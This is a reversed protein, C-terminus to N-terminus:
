EEGCDSTFNVNIDGHFGPPIVLQPGNTPQQVIQVDMWGSAGYDVNKGSAGPGVQFSPGMREYYLEAGAFADLGYARGSFTEYYRWTSPDIMGGSSIYYPTKLELKPSDTPPHNAMGPDVRGSFDVEVRFRKHPENPRYIEGTLRATGDPNEVFPAPGEFVFDTGIGPFYFGHDGSTTTAESDLMAETVCVGCGDGLDVNFDAGSIQLAPGTSPQSLIETTLWGSAGWRENAGSAGFGVQFSPGMRGLRIRAGDHQGLGIFEGSTHQYYRWRMFDIPGGQDAYQAAMLDRKPSESPLDDGDMPSAMSSFELEVAFRCDGGAIDYLVGSLTASGDPREYYAAPSEFDFWQSGVGGIWFAASGPLTSIASDRLATTACTSCNENLDLNIDGHPLSAPLSIGTTPQDILTVELWGAAGFGLNKGDAGDGVQFAPGMRAVHVKAGALADLGILDGGFTEYYRWGRTDVPGGQETFSVPTLEKKPSGAPPYGAQGPDIRGSLEVLAQFRWGPRTPSFLTGRIQATGDSSEAFAAGPEFMFDHSIGPLYFAHGGQYKAVAGDYRAASACTVCDDELDINIDGHTFGAPLNPGSDPQHVVSVDLWGCAGYRENKGSAGIGVQFAPGRREIRISAGRLRGLGQLEGLTNGYYHWGNPDVLGGNEAYAGSKLELKPSGTPPYGPAQPDIRDALDVGVQFQMTPDTRSFAIGELRASGDAREVFSAGPQFVLDTALGPIWIAHGGSYRAADGKLAPMACSSTGSEDLDINIDGGTTGPLTVGTTPQANVVTDLWGAGGFRGNKGSAGFGIQFAPGRRSVSVQAGSFDGLGVLTGEFGEYYHWTAPVIPGGHDVYSSTNLELKPSGAPPFAADSSTVRGTLHLDMHFSRAPNGSEVLVGALRATGDPRETLRGGATFVMRQSIGPLTVAHTHGSGHFPEESRAASARAVTDAQLTFSISAAGGAPVDTGSARHWLLSASAGYYANVGNAGEGVQLVTDPELELTLNTGSLDSLGTLSGAFRGFGIWRDPDIMGGQAKYAVPELAYRFEAGGLDAPFRRIGAQLNLEFRRNRDGADALEAILRATGDEYDLWQQGGVFVFTGEIGDLVLTTAEAASISDDVRANSPVFSGTVTLAPASPDSPSPSSKSGCPVGMLIIGTLACGSLVLGIPGRPSNFM